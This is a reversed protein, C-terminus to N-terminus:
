TEKGKHESDKGKIDKGKIKGELLGRVWIVTVLNPLLTHHEFASGTDVTIRYWNM